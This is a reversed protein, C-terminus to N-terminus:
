GNVPDFGFINKSLYYSKMPDTNVSIELVEQEETNEPLVLFELSAGRKASTYQERTYYTNKYVPM